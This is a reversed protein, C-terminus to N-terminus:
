DFTHHHEHMSNVEAIISHYYKYWTRGKQKAEMHIPHAAWTRVSEMDKWYSIFSGRGDHKFSEYGLYGPIQKALELTLEDYEKYGELNDSLYYNFVSAIFPPKPPINTQWHIM